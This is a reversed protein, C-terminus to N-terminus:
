GSLGPFKPRPVILEGVFRIMDKEHEIKLIAYRNRGNDLLVIKNSPSALHFSAMAENLTRPSRIGGVLRKDPTDASHADSLELAASVDFVESGALITVTQYRMCVPYWLHILALM